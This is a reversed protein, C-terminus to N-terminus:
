NNLTKVCIIYRTTQSPSRKPAFHPNAQTSSHAINKAQCPRTKPTQLHKTAPALPRKKAPPHRNFEDNRLTAFWGARKSNEDFM